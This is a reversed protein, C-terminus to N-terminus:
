CDLDELQFLCGDSDTTLGRSLSKQQIAGGAQNQHYHATEFSNPLQMPSSPSRRSSGLDCGIGWGGDDAADPHHAQDFDLEMSGGRDRLKRMVRMGSGEKKSGGLSGPNSWKQTGQYQQQRVSIWNHDNDM